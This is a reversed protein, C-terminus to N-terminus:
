VYELDEFWEWVFSEDKTYMHGFEDDNPNKVTCAAKIGPIVPSDNMNKYMLVPDYDIDIQYSVNPFNITFDSTDAPSFHIVKQVEVGHVKFVKLVGEAFAAGMSHSIMMIKRKNRLVEKFFNSQENRLREEAFDKGQSFRTKGSSFKTGAGNIFYEKQTNFYKKASSRLGTGWYQERWETRAYPMKTNWYGCIYIILPEKEKVKLYDAFALPLEVNEGDYSCAFFLEVTKDEEQSALWGFYEGLYIEKVIKNNRVIEYLSQNKPDFDKTGERYLPVRDSGKKQDQEESSRKEDDDFLSVYVPRENPIANTELHFYVTEGILAENIKDSGDEKTSWWGRVFYRGARAEKPTGHNTNRATFRNEKGAYM